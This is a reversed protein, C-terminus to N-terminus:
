LAALTGSFARICKVQGGVSAASACGNTGINTPSTLASPVGEGNALSLTGRNSTPAPRRKTCGGNLNEDSLTVRNGTAAKCPM